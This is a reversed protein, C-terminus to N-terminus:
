VVGRTELFFITILTAAEGNFEISFERGKSMVVKLTVV